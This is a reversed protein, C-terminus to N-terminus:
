EVNKKKRGPKKKVVPKSESELKDAFVAEFAM